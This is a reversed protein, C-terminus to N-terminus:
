SLPDSVLSGGVRGMTISDAVTIALTILGVGVGVGQVFSVQPTRVAGRLLSKTPFFGSSAKPKGTSASAPSAM